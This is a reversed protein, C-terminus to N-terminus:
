YGMASLFSNGFVQVVTKKALNRDKKKSEIGAFCELSEGAREM